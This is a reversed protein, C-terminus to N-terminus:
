LQDLILDRYQRLCYGQRFEDPLLSCMGKDAKERCLTAMAEALEWDERFLYGNRGPTILERNGDVDRLICPIGYYLAELASRPVGESESPIVLCDAKQLIAYPNALEGHCTVTRALNRGAIEAELFSRM